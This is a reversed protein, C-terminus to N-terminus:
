RAWIAVDQVMWQGARAVGEARFQVSTVGAPIPTWYSQFREPNATRQPGLAAPQWTTGGDLSYEVNLLTWKILDVANM